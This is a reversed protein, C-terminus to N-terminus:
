LSVVIGCDEELVYEGYFEKQTPDMDSWQDQSFCVAVDKFTVLGQSLATLFAVMEPNGPSREEPLDPGQPVPVESQQLPQFELEHCVSPEEPPGLDPSQTTEEHSEEPTSTQVANQLENPSEPEAGPHVTEESLVEQGHVHVTM